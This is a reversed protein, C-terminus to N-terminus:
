HDSLWSRIISNGALYTIGTVAYGGALRYITPTVSIGLVTPSFAEDRIYTIISFLINPAILPHEVSAGSTIAYTQQLRPLLTIPAALKRNILVTPALAYLVCISSMLVVAITPMWSAMESSYFASGEFGSLKLPASIMHSVALIMIWFMVLFCTAVARGCLSYQLPAFETLLVRRTEFWRPLDSVLYPLGKSQASVEDLTTNLAELWRAVRSFQQNLMVHYLVFGWWIAFYLPLSAFLFVIYHREKGDTAAATPAQANLLFVASYFVPAVALIASPLALSAFSPAHAREWALVTRLLDRVGATREDALQIALERRQAHAKTEVWATGFSGMFYM